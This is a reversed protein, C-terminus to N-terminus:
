KTQVTTSPYISIIYTHITHIGVIPDQDNTHITDNDDQENPNNIEETQKKHRDPEENDTHVFMSAKDINENPSTSPRQLISAQRTERELERIFEEM